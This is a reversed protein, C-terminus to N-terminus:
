DDDDEDDDPEEEDVPWQHGFRMRFVPEALMLLMREDPEKFHVIDGDWMLSDGEFLSMEAEADFAAREAKRM